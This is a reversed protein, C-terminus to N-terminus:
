RRIKNEKFILLFFIYIIQVNKVSKDGINVVTCTLMATDGALVTVNGPSNEADIRTAM